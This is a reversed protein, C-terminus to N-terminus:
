MIVLWVAGMMGFAKKYFLYTCSLYQNDLHHGFVEMNNINARIEYETKCYMVVQKLAFLNTFNIFLHEPSLKSSLLM